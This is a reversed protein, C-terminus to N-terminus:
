FYPLVRNTNAKDYLYEVTAIRKPVPKGTVVDKVVQMLQPGVFPSCEIACNMEGKEIAEITKKTVNIGIVMIEQGPKKGFKKIAEIAGLAMDEQYAFVVHINGNEARLFRGMLEEAIAFDYDASKSYVIKYNPYKNLVKLLGQNRQITPITNEMGELIVIKIEGQGRGKIDMYQILWQAARKGEDIFDSNIQTIYLSDDATNINRDLVIVPIGAGKAEKLVADWGDPQAPLFALIDVRMAILEHMQNIQDKYDGNGDRLILSIGANNAASQISDLHTKLWAAQTSSHILGLVIQKEAAAESNIFTAFFIAVCVMFIIKNNILKKM